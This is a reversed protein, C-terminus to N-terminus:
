SPEVLGRAAASWEARHKQVLSCVQQFDLADWQALALIREAVQTAKAISDQQPGMKFGSALHTVCWWDDDDLSRTVAVGGREWVADTQTAGQRSMVWVTRVRGGFSLVGQLCPWTECPAPGPFTWLNSTSDADPHGGTLGFM